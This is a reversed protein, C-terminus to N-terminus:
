DDEEAKHGYEPIRSHGPTYKGDVCWKMFFTSVLVWAGLAAFAVMEFYAFAAAAGAPSSISPYSTSLGTAYTAIPTAGVFLGVAVVFSISVDTIVLPLIYQQVLALNLFRLAIIVGEILMAVITVFLLWGAASYSPGGVSLPYAATQTVGAPIILVFALVTATSRLAIEVIGQWSKLIDIGPQPRVSQLIGVTKVAGTVTDAM